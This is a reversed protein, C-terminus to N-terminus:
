ESTLMWIVGNQPNNPCQYSGCMFMINNANNFASYVKAKPLDFSRLLSSEPTNGMCEVELKDIARVNPALNIADRHMAEVINFM